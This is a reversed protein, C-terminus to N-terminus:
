RAPAPRCLVFPSVVLAQFAPADAAWQAAHLAEIRVLDGTKLWDEVTATDNSTLAAGVTELPLDPDVFFLTGSEYHPRLYDWDVEGTYKTLKEAPSADDDGLMGYRMPDPIRDDPSIM